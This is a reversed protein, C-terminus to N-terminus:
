RKRFNSVFGEAAMMSLTFYAQNQRKRRPDGKRGYVTGERILIDPRNEYVSWVGLEGEFWVRGAVEHPLEMRDANASSYDYKQVYVGGDKSLRHVPTVEVMADMGQRPEEFDLDEVIGM